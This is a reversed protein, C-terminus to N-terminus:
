QVKEQIFAVIDAFPAAVPFVGDVGLDTLRAVDDNPIVGGVLV